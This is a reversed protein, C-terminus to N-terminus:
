ITTLVTKLGRKGGLRQRGIIFARLVGGRGLTPFKGVAIPHPHRVAVPPGVSVQRANDCGGIPIVAALAVVTVTVKISTGKM